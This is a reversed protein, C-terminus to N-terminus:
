FAAGLAVFATWNRGHVAGTADGVARAAGVGVAGGFFRLLVDISSRWGHSPTSSPAGLLTLARYGAATGIDTWGSQLGAALAPAPGPLALGGPLRLPQALARLPLAYQVEGQLLAARDGVFQKYNYSTLGEDFGLEFLQQPPIVTGTVLGADGRGLLTFPGVPQREIIRAEVRNWALDGGAWEDRLRAGFGPTAYGADVEPHLAISAMVRGYGGPLVGRNVRFVSDGIFFYPFIPPRLVRRAEGQDDAAGVEVRAVVDHQQGWARQVFGTARRRDVYDYDDQSVLAEVTPGEAFSTRFDNTNDLVREARMGVVFAGDARTWDVGAGGRVTRETWAYGVNAHAVLGPAADRFRLAAGYGTYLGEVRDIHLFDAFHDVRWDLRPPGTPRWADPALDDYEGTKVTTTASGLPLTWAGYASVSDSPAYTLAHAQPVLTDGPVPAVLTDNIVYQSYHSVVRVVIRSTGAFPSAAEGEIRQEAPLWYDGDIQANTLDVVFMAQLVAARLRRGLSPHGGVLVFAGRLRVLQNRTADLFLDGRFVVTRMPLRPRPEVHVRVLPIPPSGPVHLTAVTDGGTYRYVAERDDALPHMVVVTTDDRRRAGRTTDLGFLLNLRNGYLVPVTWAQEALGVLSPALAALQARYGIIRQEYAGTRRWRAESAVQEIEVTGQTGDSRRVLAALESEIHARYSALAPPPRRNNTVARAVVARLAPTAYTSDPGATAALQAALVFTWVHRIRYQQRASEVGSL